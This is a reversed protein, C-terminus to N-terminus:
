RPSLPSLEIEVFWRRSTGPEIIWAVDREVAHALGAESDISSPEIGLARTRGGWPYETRTSLEQWIWVFPLEATSWRIQLQFDECLLSVGASTEPRCVGFATRRTLRNIRTWSVGPVLDGPIGTPGIPCMESLGLIQVDNSVRTGFTLHETATARRVTPGDNGLETSVHVMKSALTITRSAWLGDDRWKATACNESEAVLKWPRQSGNGHFGQFRGDVESHIGSSPLLCQWGGGWAAVWDERVAEQVPKRRAWSAVALLPTQNLSLETIEFGRRPDCVARSVSTKLTM